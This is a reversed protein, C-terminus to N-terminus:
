FFFSWKSFLFRFCQVSSLWEKEPDPTWIGERWCQQVTYPSYGCYWGLKWMCKFHIKKEQTSKRQTWFLTIRRSGHRNISSPINMVFVRALLFGYWTMCSPRINTRKKGVRLFFIIWKLLSVFSESVTRSTACLDKWLFSLHKWRDLRSYFLSLRTYPRM